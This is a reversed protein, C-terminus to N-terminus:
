RTEVNLREKYTNSPNRKREFKGFGFQVPLEHFVSFHKYALKVTGETAVVGSLNPREVSVEATGAASVVPM